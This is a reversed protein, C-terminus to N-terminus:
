MTMWLVRCDGTVSVGEPIVVELMETELRSRDGREKQNM